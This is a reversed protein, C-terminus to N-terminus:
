NQKKEEGKHLGESKISQDPHTPAESTPPLPKASGSASASSTPLVSSVKKSPKRHFFLIYVLVLGALVYYWNHNLWDM